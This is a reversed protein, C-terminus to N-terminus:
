TAPHDSDLKMAIPIKVVGAMPFYRNSNFNVESKKSGDGDVLLAHLGLAGEGLRQELASMRRTLDALTPRM